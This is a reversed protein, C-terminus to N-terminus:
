SRGCSIMSQRTRYGSGSIFLWGFVDRVKKLIGAPLDTKKGSGSNGTCESLITSRANLERIQALEENTMRGFPSKLVAVLPIDQHFNDLVRLYDMM